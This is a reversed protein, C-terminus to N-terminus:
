LSKFLGHVTLFQGFCQVLNLLTYLAKHWTLALSLSDRLGLHLNGRIGLCSLLHSEVQNLLSVLWNITLILHRVLVLVLLAQVCQLLWKLDLSGLASRLTQCGYNIDLRPFSGLFGNSFHFDRFDFRLESGISENTEDLLGVFVCLLWGNLVELTLLSFTAASPFSVFDLSEVISDSTM